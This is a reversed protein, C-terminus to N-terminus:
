ILPKIECARYFDGLKGHFSLLAPIRLILEVISSSCIQAFLYYDIVIVIVIVVVAAAAAAAAIFRRSRPVTICILGGPLIVIVVQPEM